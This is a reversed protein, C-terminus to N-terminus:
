SFLPEIGIHFTHNAPIMLKGLSSQDDDVHPTLTNVAGARGELVRGGYRTSQQGGRVVAMGLM